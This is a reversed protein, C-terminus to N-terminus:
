KKTNALKQGGEPSPLYVGGGPQPYHHNPPTPWPPDPPPIPAAPRHHHTSILGIPAIALKCRYPRPAISGVVDKYVVCVLLVVRVFVVSWCMM